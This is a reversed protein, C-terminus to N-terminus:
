GSDAFSHDATATGTACFSLLINGVPVLAALSLAGRATDLPQQRVQQSQARCSKVIVECGLLGFMIAIVLNIDLLILTTV